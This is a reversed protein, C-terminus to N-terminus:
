KNVKVCSIRSDAAYMMVFDGVGFSGLIGFAMTVAGVIAFMTKM